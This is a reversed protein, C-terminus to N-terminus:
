ELIGYFSYYVTGNYDTKEAWAAKIEYVYAGERLNFRNGAIPVGWSEAHEHDGWLPEWATVDIESPDEEWELTVLGSEEPNESKQLTIAPINEQADLPHVSDSEVGTFQDKGSKYQWGYTGRMATISEDSGSVVLAPPETLIKEQTVTEKEARGCATLVLPVALFALMIRIKKLDTM